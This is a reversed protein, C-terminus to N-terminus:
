PASRVADVFRRMKERDKQGPSLEVGSSVDVGAPRTDRILRAVNEHTLGGALLFPPWKQFRGRQGQEAIIRTNALRGTGGRGEAGAADLLVFGPRRDGCADLFREAADLDRECGMSRVYISQFGRAHILRVGNPSVDGYLQLRRIGVTLLTTLIVSPNGETERGSTETERTTGTTLDAKQDALLGLENVRVLAVAADSCPLAQVIEVAKALSIRRPGAFLNLGVWDAGSNLAALADKVSTIGCIKVIM